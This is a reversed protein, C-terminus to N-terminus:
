GKKNHAGQRWGEYQTGRTEVGRVTHGKDGGKM